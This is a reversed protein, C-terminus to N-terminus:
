PFSALRNRIYTAYQAGPPSTTNATGNFNSILSLCTGWTNWTWAQYSVNHADAWSLVVSM